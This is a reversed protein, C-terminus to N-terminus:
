ARVDPTAPQDARRPQDGPVAPAGPRDTGPAPPPASNAHPAAPDASKPTNPAAPDGPKPQAGKKDAEAQANEHQKLLEPVLSLLPTAAMPIMALLPLLSSLIDPGGGAGGTGAATDLLSPSSNKANSEGAIQTNMGYTSSVRQFVKKVTAAIETMLPAELTARAQATGAAVLGPEAALLVANLDDVYKQIDRLAQNGGGAVVISTTAVQQDMTLLESRRAGTNALADLYEITAEGDGPNQHPRAPPLQAARPPPSPEARGWLAVARQIAASCSEIFQVLRPSAGKPTYVAVARSAANGAFVTQAGAPDAATTTNTVM